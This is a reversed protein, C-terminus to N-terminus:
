VIFAVPGARVPQCLSHYQDPKNELHLIIEATFHLLQPIKRNATDAAAPTAPMPLNQRQGCQLIVIEQAPLDDDTQCYIHQPADAEPVESATNDNAFPSLTILLLLFCVSGIQAILQTTPSFITFFLLFVASGLKPFLRCLHNFSTPILKKM